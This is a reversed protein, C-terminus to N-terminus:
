WVYQATSRHAVSLRRDIIWEAMMRGNEQQRAGTPANVQLLMLLLLLLLLLLTLRLLLM